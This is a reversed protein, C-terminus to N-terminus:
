SGNGTYFDVRKSFHIELKAFTVVVVPSFVSHTWKRISWLLFAFWATLIRGTLHFLVSGSWGPVCGVGPWPCMRDICLRPSAKSLCGTECGLM